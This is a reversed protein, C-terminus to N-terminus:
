SRDPTKPPVVARTVVETHQNRAAQAITGLHTSIMVLQKHIEALLSVIQSDENM